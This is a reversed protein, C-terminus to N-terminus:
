VRGTARGIGLLFLVLAVVAAVAVLVGVVLAIVRKGGAGGGAKPRDFIRKPKGNQFIKRIVDRAHKSRPADIVVCPGELKSAPVQGGWDAKRPRDDQPDLKAQNIVLAVAPPATKADPPATFAWHLLVDLNAKSAAANGPDDFEAVMEAPGLILRSTIEGIKSM